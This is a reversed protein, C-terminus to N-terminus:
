SKLSETKEVIHGDNPCPTLDDVDPLKVDIDTVSGATGPRQESHYKDHYHVTTPELRVCVTSNDVRRKNHVKKFYVIAGGVIVTVVLLLVVVAVSVGTIVGSNDDTDPKTTSTSSCSSLHTCSVSTANCNYCSSDYIIFMTENGFNVGDNSLSLLYGEAIETSSGTSRKKRSANPLTCVCYFNNMYIAPFEDTSDLIDWHDLYVKVYRVRCTLQSDIFNFGPIVFNTCTSQDRKCLGDTGTQRIIPPTTKLLSCEDGYLGSDCICSGNICNGNGSCNNPCSLSTLEELFTMGGTSGQSTLNESRRAEVICMTKLAEVTDKMFAGNGSVLIDNICEEESAVMSELMRPVIEKCRNLLTNGSFALRCSDRALDSSWGNRWVYVETKIYNEHLDVGFKVPAVPSDSTVDRKYREGCVTFYGSTDTVKTCSTITSDLDCIVRDDLEHFVTADNRCRCYQLPLIPLEPPSTNVDFLSGGDAAVDLRWNNGFESWSSSLRGARNQMDNSSDGDLVGCLGTTSAWDMLSPKVMVYRVYTYENDVDVRLSIVVETGTSLTVMYLDSAKTEVTLHKNDCARMEIYQNTNTIGSIWPIGVVSRCMNVVFLSDGYQIAIGCVCAGGWVCSDFVAHIRTPLVNHKYLVYEGSQQYNWYRGDFTWMNPDTRAACFKGEIDIDDDTVIVQIDPGSAYSWAGHYISHTAELRIFISRSNMNVLNDGSGFITFTKIKEIESFSFTVGCFNSREFAIPEDTVGGPTCQLQRDKYYTPTKIVLDLFCNDEIFTDIQDPSLSDLYMCGLPVTLWVTIDISGRESVVYQTADTMIGAYFSESYTYTGSPSGETERVRVGCKVLFGLTYTGEWSSEPLATDALYTSYAVGTITEVVNDNIRWEVDVLYTSINTDSSVTIDCKFEIVKAIAVISPFHKTTQVLGVTVNASLGVDHWNTTNATCPTFGTESSTGDACPERDGFCYATPCSTTQVLEYVNFTTCNKMRVNWTNQCPAFITQLCMKVETIEGSNPVVDDMWVPNSTGCRSTGPAVTPVDGGAGSTARYWKMELTADCKTVTTDTNSISRWPEDLATYTTPQCPDADQGYSVYILTVTILICRM